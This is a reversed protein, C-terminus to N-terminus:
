RPLLLETGRARLVQTFYEEVSLGNACATAAVSYLIASAGAGKPSTSFLWNKRGVVFPRIANEARNNDVPISRNELFRYMYTRENLCYQVAKALKTGGAPHIEGLWAFFEDLVPKSHKQRNVYQEETMLPRNGQVVAVLGEIGKRLDSYGTVLYVTSTLTLEKLM